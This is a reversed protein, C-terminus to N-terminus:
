RRTASKVEVYADPLGTRTLCFTSYALNEGYKWVRAERHHLGAFPAFRGLGDIRGRIARNPLATDVGPNFHGTKM